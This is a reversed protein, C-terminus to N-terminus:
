GQRIFYIPRCRGTDAAFWYMSILGTLFLVDFPKMLGFSVFALKKLQHFNKDPALAATQPCHTTDTAQMAGTHNAHIKMLCRPTRCCRPSFFYFIHTNKPYERTSSDLIVHLVTWERLGMCTLSPCCVSMKTDNYNKVPITLYDHYM